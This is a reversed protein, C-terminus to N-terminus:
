TLWCDACFWSLGMETELEEKKLQKTFSEAEPSKMLSRYPVTIFLGCNFYSPVLVTDGKKTPFSWHIVRSPVSQIMKAFMEFNNLTAGAPITLFFPATVKNSIRRISGGRQSIAEHQVSSDVIIPITHKKSNIYQLALNQRNGFGTVDLIIIKQTYKSHWDSDLTRELDALTNRDEDFFVLLDMKLSLEEGVCCFLPKTSSHKQKKAWAHSRCTRCYGPAFTQGDKSACFQNLVCGNGKNTKKLFCCGECGTTIM